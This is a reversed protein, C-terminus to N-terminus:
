HNEHSFYRIQRQCMMSKRLTTNLSLLLDFSKFSERYPTDRHLLRLLFEFILKGPTGLPVTANLYVFVMCISYRSLLLSHARVKKVSNMARSSMYSACLALKFTISWKPVKGRLYLLFISSFIVIKMTKCTHAAVIMKYGKRALFFLKNNVYRM